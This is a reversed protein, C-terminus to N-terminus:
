EIHIWVEQENNLYYLTCLSGVPMVINATSSAWKKTM